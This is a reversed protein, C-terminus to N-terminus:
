PDGRKHSERFQGKQSSNEDPQPPGRAEQGRGGTQLVRGEPDRPAQCIRRGNEIKDSFEKELRQAIILVTNLPNRIEHAIGRSLERLAEFQRSLQIKEELRIIETVDELVVLLSDGVPLAIVDIYRVDDDGAIVSRKM